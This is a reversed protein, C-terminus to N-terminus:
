PTTPQIEEDSLLADICVGLSNLAFARQKAQTISPNSSGTMEIIKQGTQEHLRGQKYGDELGAIGIMARLVTKPHNAFSHERRSVMYYSHDHGRREIEEKQDPVRLGALIAAVTEVISTNIEARELNTLEFGLWNADQEALKCAIAVGLQASRGAQEIREKVADSGIVLSKKNSAVNELRGGKEDRNVGDFISVKGPVFGAVNVDPFDRGSGGLRISSRPISIEIKGPLIMPHPDWSERRITTPGTALDGAGSSFGIMMDQADMSLVPTGPILRERIEGIRELVRQAYGARDALENHNLVSTWVAKTVAEIDDDQAVARCLWTRVEAERKLAGTVAIENRARAATTNRTEDAMLEQLDTQAVLVQEQATLWGEFLGKTENKGSIEPKRVTESGVESAM